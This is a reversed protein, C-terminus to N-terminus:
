VDILFPALSVAKTDVVTSTVNFTSAVTFTKHQDSEVHKLNLLHIIVFLKSGKLAFFVNMLFFNPWVM